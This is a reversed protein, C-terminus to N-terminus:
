VLDLISHNRKFIPISTGILVDKSFHVSSVGSMTIVAGGAMGSTTIWAKGCGEYSGSRAGNGTSPPAFHFMELFVWVEDPEEVDLLLWLYLQM